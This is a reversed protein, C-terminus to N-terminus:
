LREERDEVILDSVSKGQVHNKGYISKLRDFLRPWKITKSSRKVPVIKAVVQKYRTIEVAEGHEVLRLVKTLHHQIERVTATKM